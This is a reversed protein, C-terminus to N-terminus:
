KGQQLRNVSIFGVLSGCLGKYVYINHSETSIGFFIFVNIIYIASYGEEAQKKKRKPAYSDLVSPYLCLLADSNTDSNTM